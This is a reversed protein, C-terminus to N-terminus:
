CRDGGANRNQMKNIAELVAAPVLGSIDGCHRLVSRVISSSIFANQLSPMFYMTEFDSWLATNAYSLQLEYEFDSVARLGRIVTNIGNSRAFDVLLNDFGVVSANPINLVALQTLKIRENLSFHPSKSSNQAVAVLVEDFVRAARRIIDVHGNTVPDFTGPYICKKM